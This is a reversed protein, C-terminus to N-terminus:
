RERVQTVTATLVGDCTATGIMEPTYSYMGDPQLELNHTEPGYEGGDVRYVILFSRGELSHLSLSSLEPEVVVLAGASGYCTRETEFLEIYFDEPGFEYPAPETTTTPAETVVPPETTPPPAPAETTPAPTEAPATDEEVVVPAPATEEAQELTGSSCAAATLLLLSAIIIRRM